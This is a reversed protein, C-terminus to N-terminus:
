PKVEEIWLEVPESEAGGLTVTIEVHEIVDGDQTPTVAITEAFTDSSSTV